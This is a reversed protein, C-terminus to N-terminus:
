RQVRVGVGRHPEAGAARLSEERREVRGESRRRRGIDPAERLGRAGVGFRDTVHCPQERDRARVDHDDVALPQERAQAAVVRGACQQVDRRTEVQQGGPFARAQEADGGPGVATPERLCSHQRAGAGAVGLRGGAAVGCCHGGRGRAAVQGREVQQVDVREAVQGPAVRPGGRELLRRRDDGVGREEGLADTLVGGDDEGGLGIRLLLARERM